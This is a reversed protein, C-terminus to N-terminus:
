PVLRRLGAYAPHANALLTSGGTAIPLSHFFDLGEATRPAPRAPGYRRLLLDAGGDAAAASQEWVQMTAVYSAWGRVGVWPLTLAVAAGLTAVLAAASRRYGLLALPIATLVFSARLAAALGFSLGAWGGGPGQRVMSRTGLALLVLVFAYFQGREVHFRWLDGAVFFFMGLALLATRAARSRVIGVLI